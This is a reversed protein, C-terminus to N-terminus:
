EYSSITRIDTSDIEMEGAASFRRHVQKLFEGLPVEGFKALWSLDTLRNEPIVRLLRSRELQLGRCDCLIHLRHLDDGCIPCMTDFLDDQPLHLSGLYVDSVLFRLFM